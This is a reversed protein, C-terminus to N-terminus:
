SILPLPNFYVGEYSVGWHLHPGTSAGTSGVYGIVQGAKVYQGASVIYHTMHMYVSRYGDGHNIQVYYGASDSWVAIEVLGGRSAYIPTGQACALDIGNHMRWYGYVPHLRNGFVSSVYAGNVPVVWGSPHTVPVSVTNNAPPAPKPQAALWEEYEKQKAKDFEDKKQAIQQMLENQAAEGEDIFKEYEEGIEALQLLLRDSEVRKLALAAQDEELGQLTLSLEQEQQLLLEKAAAVEEAALRLNEVRSRDSEAIEDIINVRDLFDTFSNARFLISWYSLGSNEEMIRIRKLSDERLQEYRAEAYEVQDQKDAILQKLAKVEQEVTTVQQHLLAIQQDLVDKQAAIEAMQNANEKRKKELAALQAKIEKQQEKLEDIEEQIESSSAGYSTVPAMGLLLIATLCLCIFRFFNKRLTM